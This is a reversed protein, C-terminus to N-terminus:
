DAACPNCAGACPNCPNCAAACPNCAAACPNCAAACPNCAAACPNCAAACPNCVSCQALQVQGPEYAQAVAAPLVTASTLAVVASLAIAANKLNNRSKTSM